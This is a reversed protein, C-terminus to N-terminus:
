GKLRILDKDINLPSDEIESLDLVSLLKILCKTYVAKLIELSEFGEKGIKNKRDTIDLLEHTGKTIGKGFSLYVANDFIFEDYYHHKGRFEYLLANDISKRSNILTGPTIM